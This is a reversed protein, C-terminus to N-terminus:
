SSTFHLWSSIASQLLGPDRQFPFGHVAPLHQLAEVLDLESERQAVAFGESAARRALYEQEPQGPTPVIIAKVGLAAYDMLSSYGSRSVVADASILAQCIEASTMRCRIVVEGDVTSAVDPIGAVLLCPKGTARLMPLLRTFFRTADPEPGSVVAVIHWNRAATEGDSRVFRSLTGIFRRRVGSVESLIGSLARDPTDPVAVEDFRRIMLKHIATVIRGILPITFNLQHGIYVSKTGSLYCGYRNDSIILDPQEAIAITRFAVHERRIALFFSIFQRAMAPIVGGHYNIGYGPIEALRLGPFEQRLWEAAKGSSILVVECGHAVLARIIPASRSAHGLGWDLVAFLIKKEAPM